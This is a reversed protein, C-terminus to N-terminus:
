KNKFHNIIPEMKSLFRKGKVFARAKDQWYNLNTGNEYGLLDAITNRMNAPANRVRTALLAAPCYLQYICAAILVNKDFQQLEPYTNCILSYIKPIQTLDRLVPSYNKNTEIASIPDLAYQIRGLLEYNIKPSNTM